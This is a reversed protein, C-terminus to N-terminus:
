GDAAPRGGQDDFVTNRGRKRRKPPVAEDDGRLVPIEGSSADRGPINGLNIPIEDLLNITLNEQGSEMAKTCGDEILRKLLGVIGETRRFLYEPMTGDTLMGPAARFLRLQDEVGALHSVWAAIGHPTDYHFPNLNIM